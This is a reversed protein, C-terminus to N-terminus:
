QSLIKEPIPLPITMAGELHGESERMAIETTKKFYLPKHLIWSVCVWPMLEESFSGPIHQKLEDFWMDTFVEAVEHLCYKDILIAIQTLTYFDIDRPVKRTHGHIINLLIQLAPPDDDPLTIEATGASGLSQSEAFGGKLLRKFVPSALILHGSSVRMQIVAPENDDGPHASNESQDTSQSDNAGADQGASEDEGLLILVVDGDPDFEIYDPITTM